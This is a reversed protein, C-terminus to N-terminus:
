QSTRSMQIDFYTKKAEPLLDERKAAIALDLAQKALDYAEEHEGREACSRAVVMRANIAGPDDQIVQRLIAEGKKPDGGLIWPVEILITGKASRADVHHPDLLLTQDLADMMRKYELISYVVEGKARMSEGINCFLAFHADASDKDLKVAQEALARGQEYHTFRVIEKKARRGEQCEDMAQRTLVQPSEEGLVGGVGLWFLVLGAFIIFFIRHMMIVEHITREFSESSIFQLKKDIL